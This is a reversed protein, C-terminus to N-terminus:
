KENRNETPLFIARLTVLCFAQNGESGRHAVGVSYKQRDTVALTQTLTLPPGPHTQAPATSLAGQPEIRGRERLNRGMVIIGADAAATASAGSETVGVEKFL